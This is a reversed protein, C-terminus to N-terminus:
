VSRTIAADQLAVLLGWFGVKAKRPRRHDDWCSWGQFVPVGLSREEEPDEVRARWLGLAVWWRRRRETWVRDDCGEDRGM